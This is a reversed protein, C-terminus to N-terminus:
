KYFREYGPCSEPPKVKRLMYLYFAAFDIIYFHNM